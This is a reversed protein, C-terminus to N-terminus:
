RTYNISADTNQLDANIGPAKNVAGPEQNMELNLAENLTIPGSV